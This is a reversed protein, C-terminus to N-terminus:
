AGSAPAPEMAEAPQEIQVAAARSGRSKLLLCPREVWRWSASAACAAAFLSLLFLCYNGIGRGLLDVILLQCPWAYLYIGYSLDTRRLLEAPKLRRSYALALLLYSGCVPLAVNLFGLQAGAALVLACCAALWRSLPVYQRYLLFCMGALFYLPFGLRSALLNGAGPAGPHAACFIWAAAFLALVTHRLKFLSLLGLALALLYCQFEIRITWLSGNVQNPEVQYPFIPPLHLPRLLLLDQAFLRPNFEHFYSGLRQAGMPGVFFACVLAAAIFGPYIRLARKKLYDLPGRSQLWSRTVLFGSIVFFGCVALHGCNIQGHTVTWIPEGAAVGALLFSHSYVVLTALLLRLLDFNNSRGDTCDGM